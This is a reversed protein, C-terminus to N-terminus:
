LRYTPRAHNRNRPERHCQPYARLAGGGGGDATTTTPSATTTTAASRRSQPRIPRGDRHHASPWNGRTPWGRVPSIPADHDPPRLSRARHPRHRNFHTVYEDPATHPHRPGAILMRDAGRVPGHSGVERFLRESPPTRPPIRVAEIGAGALMADFAETFQGARDRILFRFRAARDGPDM